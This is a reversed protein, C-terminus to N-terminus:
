PWLEKVCVQERACVCVCVYVCTCPYPSMTSASIMKLSRPEFPKPNTVNAFPSSALRALISMEPRIMSPLFISTCQIIVVTFCNLQHTDFITCLHYINRNTHMDSKTYIKLDTWGWIQHISNPFHLIYKEAFTPLLTCNFYSWQKVLTVWKKELPCIPTNWVRGAHQLLKEIWLTKDVRKIGGERGAQKIRAQHISTSSTHHWTIYRSPSQNISASIIDHKDAQHSIAMIYAAHAIHVCWFSIM